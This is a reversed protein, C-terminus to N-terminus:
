MQNKSPHGVWALMTVRKKKKHALNSKQLIPLNNEEQVDARTGLIWQFSLKLFESSIENM